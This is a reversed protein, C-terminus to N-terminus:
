SQYDTYLFNFACNLLLKNIAHPSCLTHQQLSYHLYGKVLKCISVCFFGYVWKCFKLCLCMFDLDKREM